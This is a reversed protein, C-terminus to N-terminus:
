VAVSLKFPYREGDDTLVQEYFILPRQTSAYPCIAIEYNGIDCLISIRIPMARESIFIGGENIQALAFRHVYPRVGVAHLSAMIIPFQPSM